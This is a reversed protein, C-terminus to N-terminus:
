FDYNGWWIYYIAKKKSEWWTKGKNWHHYLPIMIVLGITGVLLLFLAYLIYYIGCYLYRIM